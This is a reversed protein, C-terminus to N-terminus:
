ATDAVGQLQTIMVGIGSRAGTFEAVITALLAYVVAFEM